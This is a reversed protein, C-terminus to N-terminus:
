FTIEDNKFIKSILTFALGAALMVMVCIAAGLGANTETYVSAMDGFTTRIM